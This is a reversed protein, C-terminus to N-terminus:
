IFEYRRVWANELVEVLTSLKSEEEKLTPV